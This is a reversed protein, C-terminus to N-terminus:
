FLKEVRKFENIIDEINEVGVSIRLLDKPLGIKNLFERGKNTQLYDYHALYTYPMLLTFETGLSPGKCFSFEDYIKQFDKTFTVSIVGVYDNSNKTIKLFNTKNEENQCSYIKKIIPSTKLYEVLKKTNSSIKKMRNEYDKIELALRQMDKIYPTDPHKFFEASIHSIKSNENLIVAGMLVDANGCAFKTLSEVFIDGYPKLDCIFPTAFTSDIILTINYKDCLSRLRPLDTCALLPNTPVETIISSVQFGNENLYEELIDLDNVDLFKKIREYYHDVINMTDLYLWGLQVIITRGNKAGISKAGKIASYVANMGSPALSINQTPQEYAKALTKIIEDKADDDEYLEENQKDKLLGINCLYDEALRSSLNYGVHQIFQLVKKLQRSNKRVLIVGFPENIYKNMDQDFYPIKNYIYYKHAVVDVAKKSSLLVVEFYDPVQYKVKIHNALIRLYPHMVFRPYASKIKELIEPTQEEYDIVDQLNPMSVSVAHINNPPLTQGCEHNTFISNNM